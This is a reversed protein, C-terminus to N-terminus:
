GGALAHRDAAPPKRLRDAYFRLWSNSWGFLSSARIIRKVDARTIRVTGSFVGGNSSSIAATRIAFLIPWMCALRVRYVSRPLLTVYSLASQLHGEAKAILRNLVTMAQRRYRPDFLQDRTIGAQSCFSEPVYIWGREYDERLGRIINVTQLALGTERALPMLDNKRSRILDSHYAFVETSLYGVRGAVEHMYDDMDAETRIDSGRSVWRAMGITSKQVHQSITQGLDPPLRQMEALISGAQLAAEYDSEDPAPTRRIRQEFEIAPRDGRIVSQWLQLLRVKEVPPLVRSDELYDSVRLMLYALCLSTGAEAPLKRISLYFTRSTRRLLNWYNM